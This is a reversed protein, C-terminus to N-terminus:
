SKKFLEKKKQAKTKAPNRTINPKAKTKDNLLKSISNQHVEIVVKKSTPNQQLEQNEKVDLVNFRNSIPTKPSPPPSISPQRERKRNKVKPDETYPRDPFENLDPLEQSLPQSRPSLNITNYTPDPVRRQPMPMPPPLNVEPKNPKTVSAYTKDKDLLRRAYGVSIHESTSKNIAAEELKYRKCNIDNHRHNGSCNVCKVENPCHEHHFEPCNRCIKKNKCARSPHGYGYCNYCQMPRQKFPKVNIRENEILINFPVEEDEFSLIIMSTNPIKNVKWVRAPCMDLIEEESFEYLDRDFIVGRGYSFNLHPKVNVIIENNNTDLNSFMVSQTSSKAHVLVTNKGFRSVDGPKISGFSKQLYKTVKFYNSYEEKTTLLLWKPPKPKRQNLINESTSNAKRIWNEPRYVDLNRPAKECLACTVDVDIKDNTIGISANLANEPTEYLVWAEWLESDDNLNMKIEKVLGYSKMVDYLIGYNYHIPLNIIHVIQLCNTNVKVLNNNKLTVNVESTDLNLDKETGTTTKHKAALGEDPPDPPDPPIPSNVKEKPKSDAMASDNKGIVAVM